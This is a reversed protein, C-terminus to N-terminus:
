PTDEWFFNPPVTFHPTLESIVGLHDQERQRAWRSAFHPAEVGEFLVRGEADRGIIKIAVPCSPLGEADIYNNPWRGLPRSSKRLQGTAMNVAAVTHDGRVLAYIWASSPLGELPPPQDLWGAVRPIGDILYMAELDGAMPDSQLVPLARPEPGQNQNVSLWNAITVAGLAGGEVGESRRPPLGSAEALVSAAGRPGAGPSHMALSWIDEIVEGAVLASSGNRNLLVLQEGEPSVLTLCDYQGGGPHTIFVRLNPEVLRLLHAAIMWSLLEKIHYSAEQM